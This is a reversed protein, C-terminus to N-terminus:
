FNLECHCKVVEYVLPQDNFRTTYNGCDPCFYSQHQPESLYGSWFWFHNPIDSMKYTTYNIQDVIVKKHRRTRVYIKTPFAYDKIITLMERPLPLLHLICQRDMIQINKCKKM